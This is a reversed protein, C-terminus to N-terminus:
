LCGGDGDGEDGAEFADVSESEVLSTFRTV